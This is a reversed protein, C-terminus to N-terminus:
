QQYLGGKPSDKTQFSKQRKATLEQDFGVFVVAIVVFVAVAIVVVHVHVCVLKDLNSSLAAM